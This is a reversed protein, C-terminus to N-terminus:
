GAQKLTRLMCDIAAYTDFEIVVDMNPHGAAVQRRDLVTAGHTLSGATEVDCFLRETTLLEPHVAAVVAIAEPVFIGEVGLRQRFARFAGPLTAQLVRGIGTSADPLQELLGIDLEATSSVDLPLLTKTVPSRFVYRAAEADCYINFEAAATVNGPGSLTGGVIILHGVQTALDPERQFVAALNSLPGGAIITLEGPAARIEDAIIKISSHRHHLEAVSFDAGCLGDSGFLERGDTRLPQLADAAGIRPWRAPDIQEIIAQVNRTAQEPAVNGGTATVAVVELRPDNLALCLALADGIGPDVDLLVKRTM